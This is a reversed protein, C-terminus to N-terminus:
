PDPWDLLAVEQAQSLNLAERAQEAGAITVHAGVLVAGDRVRGEWREATDGPMGSRELTRAVGGLLHGAVEGLTAALPGDAVIPGVGPVVLAVAAILHGSLEGLRSATPSDEIETGPSADAIRALTEEEDHTRAVISVRAPPVGLERMRLAARAAHEPRDFLGIVLPHAM